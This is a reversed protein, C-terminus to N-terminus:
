GRLLLVMFADVNILFCLGAVMMPPATISSVV